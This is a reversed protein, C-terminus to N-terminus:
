PHYYQNTFNNKLIIKLIIPLLLIIIPLVLSEIWFLTESFDLTIVFIGIFIFAYFFGITGIIYYLLGSIISILTEKKM